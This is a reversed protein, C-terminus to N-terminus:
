AALIPALCPHHWIYVVLVMFVLNINNLEVNDGIMGPQWQGFIEIGFVQRM